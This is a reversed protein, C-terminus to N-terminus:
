CARALKRVDCPYGTSAETICAMGNSHHNRGICTRTPSCLATTHMNNYRLGNEALRDINPTATPSGYCGLQAFGTSESPNRNRHQVHPRRKAPIVRSSRTEPGWQRLVLVEIDESRNTRVALRAM